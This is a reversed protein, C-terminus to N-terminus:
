EGIKLEIPGFLFNTHAHLWFVWYTLWKGFRTCCWHRHQNEFHNEYVKCFRALLSSSVLSTKPLATKQWCRCFHKTKSSCYSEIDLNEVPVLNSKTQTNCISPFIDRCSVLSLLPQQEKSVVFVVSSLVAFALGLQCRVVVTKEIGDTNYTQRKHLFSELVTRSCCVSGLITPLTCHPTRTELELMM